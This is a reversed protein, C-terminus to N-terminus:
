KRKSKAVFAIIITISLYILFNLVFILISNLLDINDDLPESRKTYSNIINYLWPYYYTYLIGPIIFVFSYKIIMNIKKMM